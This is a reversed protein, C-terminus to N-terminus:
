ENTACLPRDASGIMPLQFSFVADVFNDDANVCHSRVVKLTAGGM